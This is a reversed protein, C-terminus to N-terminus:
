LILNYEKLVKFFKMMTNLFSYYIFLLTIIRSHPLLIQYKAQKNPDLMASVRLRVCITCNNSKDVNFGTWNTRKSRVIISVTRTHSIMSNWSKIWPKTNQAIQRFRYQWDNRFYKRFHDVLTREERALLFCLTQVSFYLYQGGVERSKEWTRLLFQRQIPYPRSAM